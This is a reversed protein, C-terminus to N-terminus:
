ARVLTADTNAAIAILAELDAIRVTVLQHGQRRRDAIEGLVRKYRAAQETLPSALARDLCPTGAKFAHITM